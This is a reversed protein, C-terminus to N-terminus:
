KQWECKWGTKGKRLIREEEKEYGQQAAPEALERSGKIARAMHMNKVVEKDEKSLPHIKEIKELARYLMRGQMNVHEPAGEMEEQKDKEILEVIELYDTNIVCEVMYYPLYVCNNEVRRDRLLEQIYPSNLECKLKVKILVGETIADKISYYEM